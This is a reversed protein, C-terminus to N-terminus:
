KPSVFFFSVLLDEFDWKGVQPKLKKEFQCIEPISIDELVKKM